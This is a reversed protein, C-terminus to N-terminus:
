FCSDITTHVFPFVPLRPQISCAASVKQFLDQGQCEAAGARPPKAPSLPLLRAPDELETDPTERQQAWSPLAGAACASGRLRASGRSGGGPRGRPPSPAPSSMAPLRPLATGATAPTPILPVVPAWTGPSGQHGRSGPGGVADGQQRSSCPGRETLPIPLLGAGRLAAPAAPHFRCCNELLGDQEPNLSGERGDGEGSEQGVCGVVDGSM